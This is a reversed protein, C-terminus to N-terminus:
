REFSTGAHLSIMENLEKDSIRIIKGGLPKFNDRGGFVLWIIDKVPTTQKHDWAGDLKGDTFVITNIIAHTKKDKKSFATAAAEFNTGYGDSKIRLTDIDTKRKIETWGYFRSAFTGVRIKTHKIMPVLQHVFGRLLKENISGSSDLLVETIAEDDADFDEIRYGGEEDNWEWRERETALNKKLLKKWNLVPAVNVNSSIGAACFISDLPNAGAEAKRKGRDQLEREFVAQESIKAQKQEQKEGQQPEKKDQSPKLGGTLKKLKGSMGEKSKQPMEEREDGEWIDHNDIGKYDGLDIDDLGGGIEGNSKGSQSQAQKQKELLEDYITEADRFLGDAIDAGGGQPMQLGDRKLFANICADTAINWLELDRGQQREKHNFVIHLIAHAYIFLQNQPTISQMFKPSLVINKYDTGATLVADDWMVPIIDTFAGLGAYVDCFQRKLTEIDILPYQKQEEM